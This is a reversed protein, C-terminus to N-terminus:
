NSARERTSKKHGTEDEFSFGHVTPKRWFGCIKRLRLSEFEGPARVSLRGVLREQSLVRERERESAKLRM